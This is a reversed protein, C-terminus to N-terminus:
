RGKTTDFIILRSPDVERWNTPDAKALELAATEADAAATEDQAVGPAALVLALAAGVILQRSNM